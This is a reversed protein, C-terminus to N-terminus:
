TNVTVTFGPNITDQVTVTVTATSSNGNSDTISYEFTDDGIFKSPSTYDISDDTPDYFTGGDNVVLTGGNASTESPLSIPESNPGDLGFDDNILVTINTLLDSAAFGVDDVATPAYNYEKSTPDGCSTFVLSLVILPYFLNKMKM